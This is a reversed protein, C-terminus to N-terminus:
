ITIEIEKNKDIILYIKSTFIDIFQCVVDVKKGNKWQPGDRSIGEIIYNLSEPRETSDYNVEWIENRKIIYQKVLEFRSVIEKKNIEILNNYSILGNDKPGISPMFDIWVNAELRLELSDIYIIEPSDKLERKLLYNDRDCSYFVISIVYIIVSIKVFRNRM